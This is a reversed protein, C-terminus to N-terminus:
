QVVAIVFVLQQRGPAGLRRYDLSILDEVRGVVGRSGAHRQQRRPAGLRRYDLGVMQGSQGRLARLVAALDM